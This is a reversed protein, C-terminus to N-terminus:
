NSMDWHYYFLNQFACVTDYNTGKLRSDSMIYANNRVMPLSYAQDRSLKVIEEYMKTAQEIDPEANAADIMADLEESKPPNKYNFLTYAAMSHFEYNYANVPNFPTIGMLIFTLEFDGNIRRQSGINSEVPETIVNIGVESLAAQVATATNAMDTTTEYLIELTLENEDYGAEKLLQRAKEPNHEYYPYQDRPLWGPTNVTFPMRDTESLGDYVALNIAESDIAHSIAQRVRVDDLAEVKDMNMWLILSADKEVKTIAIDENDEMSKIDLARGFQYEDLEGNKFAIFATNNDLITKFNITKIEPSGRWHDEYAKLSLLEGPKWEDVMFPGTGILAEEADGHEAVLEPKALHMQPTSLLGPLYAFPQSLNIVVTYEDVAEWTDLMFVKGSTTPSEIYLDINGLVDKATFDSGDHWKVDKRLYFTYQTFDDNADWKEALAPRIDTSDGMYMETLGDFINNAINMDYITRAHMPVLITPDVVSQLNLVTPDKEGLSSIITDKKTSDSKNNNTEETKSSSCSTIILASVLMFLCLWRYRKRFNNM